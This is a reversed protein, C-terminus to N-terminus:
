EKLFTNDRNLQSMIQIKFCDNCNQEMDAYVHKYSYIWNMWAHCLLLLFSKFYTLSVSIKSYNNTVLFNLKCCLSYITQNHWFYAWCMDLQTCRCIVWQMYTDYLKHDNYEAALNITKCVKHCFKVNYDTFKIQSYVAIIILFYQSILCYYKAYEYKLM